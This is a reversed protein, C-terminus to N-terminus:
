YLVRESMLRQKQTRPQPTHAFVRRGGCPNGACPGGWLSATSLMKFGSPDWPPFIDSGTWQWGGLPGTVRNRTLLAPGVTTLAGTAGRPGSWATLAPTRTPSFRPGPSPGPHGLQQLGLAPGLSSRGTGLRPSVCACMGSLHACRLGHLDTQIAYM